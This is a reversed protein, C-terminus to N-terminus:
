TRKAELETKKGVFRVFLYLLLINLPFLIASPVGYAAPLTGFLTGSVGVLLAYPLQTRVHEIHNCSSALSSLITTDSIPSCHDGLVSGALVTSVVNYFISLAADHELGFERSLIWSAPLILPYLIAMTGWSSGTAFAVFAALLFTIAPIVYPTINVALLIGSIFDATHMYKTILAIAWALVLILVATVMTKFGTLLSEMSEKLTMIRQAVTMIVAVVAGSLSGWLLARYSDASGIIHSLNSSFSLGTEWGTVKLGTTVLGAVTVIVIALVPVVANYWREKGQVGDEFDKSIGPHIDAVGENRSRIEAKLMPGFDRRSVVIIVIFALALVPYFSYALSNIFVDYATQELGLTNIGDQIYSLEAGIWTTIFAIASIPAATSDVIYSLKERSIRLRDAVPRMTNGVVLTNAYDDFFIAMGLFWTVFQGSRPSRAFRSLFAVVGKMGGNYSILTVTAGILMSFVIISLHDTDFLSEIIYVDAIALLGYLISAFFSHGQYFTIIVSGVLLGTFLASYVERFALAMLIAILPPLISMWLPVPTFRKQFVQDALRVTLDGARDFTHSFVAVGEQVDVKRSTGNVQLIVSDPMEEVTVPLIVRFEAPIHQVVVGAPEVQLSGSGHAASVISLLSLVSLFRLLTHITIGKM